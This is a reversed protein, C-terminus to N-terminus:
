ADKQRHSSAHRLTQGLSAASVEPYFLGQSGSCPISSKFSRPRRLVWHWAGRKAWESDANTVCDAVEVLGVLGGLPLETPLKRYIGLQWLYQFGDPDLSKAAHVLLRGRHNTPRTRNEIDKYGMVIAWAWPQRVTLAKM